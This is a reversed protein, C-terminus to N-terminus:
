VEIAFGSDGKYWLASFTEEFPNSSSVQSEKMSINIKRQLYYQDLLKRPGCKRLTNINFLIFLFAMLFISQLM